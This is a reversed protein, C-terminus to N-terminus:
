KILRNKFLQIDSNEFENEREPHWMIGVISISKHIFAEVFGNEDWAIPQLDQALHESSIGWNHYSNVFDPILDVYEQNVKLKHRVGAQGQVPSLEGGLYVNLMQMGRCVGIIPVNHRIANEILVEEFKDREPAADIGNPEISSLTNGGSLIVGDLSLSNLLDPINDSDVNPLPIPVAGVAFAFKAWRQDLCDRRESIDPLFVARQTIGLRKM